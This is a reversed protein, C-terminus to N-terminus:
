ADGVVLRISMIKSCLCKLIPLPTTHEFLRKIQWVNFFLPFQNCLLAYMPNDLFMLLMCQVVGGKWDMSLDNRSRNLLQIFHIPEKRRGFRGQQAHNGITNTREVILQIEIIVVLYEL